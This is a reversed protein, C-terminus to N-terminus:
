DRCNLTFHEKRLNIPSSQLRSALTELTKPDFAEARLLELSVALLALEVVCNSVSRSERYLIGDDDHAIALNFEDHIAKRRSLQWSLM